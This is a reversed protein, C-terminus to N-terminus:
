DNPYGSSKNDSLMIATELFGYFRDINETLQNARVCERQITGWIDRDDLCLLLDQLSEIQLSLQKTIRNQLKEVITTYQGFCNEKWSRMQRQFLWEEKLLSITLQVQQQAEECVCSQPALVTM